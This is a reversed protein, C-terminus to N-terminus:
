KKSLWQLLLKMEKLWSPKPLIKTTEIERLKIEVNIPMTDLKEVFMVTKATPSKGKNM